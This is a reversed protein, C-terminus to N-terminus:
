GDADRVYRLINVRLAVLNATALAGAVVLLQGRTWAVVPTGLALLGGFLVILPLLYRPQVQEGVIAGGQQLVYLPLLWLVLGTVGVVVAKRISMRRLGLVGAV